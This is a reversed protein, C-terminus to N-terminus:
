AVAAEGVVRGVTKWNMLTLLIGLVVLAIAGVYMGSYSFAVILAGAVPSGVGEGVRYFMSYTAMAKGM